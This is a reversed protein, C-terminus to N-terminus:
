NRLFLTANQVVFTNSATTGTATVKLRIEQCAIPFELAEAIETATGTDEYQWTGVPGNRLVAYNTGDLSVEVEFLIRTPTNNSELEFSICAHRYKWCEISSSTATTTTNNYTTSVNDLVNYRTNPTEVITGNLHPALQCRDGNAVDTPGQEADSDPTWDTARGGVKLPKGDDAADHDIDGGAWAAGRLGAGVDEIGVV